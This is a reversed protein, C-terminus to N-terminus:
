PEAMKVLSVSQFLPSTSVLSVIILRVTPALELFQKFAPNDITKSNIEQRDFYALVCLGGYTGVDPPSIVDNFSVEIEFPVGIFMRAAQKHPWEELIRKKPFFLFFLLFFFVHRPSNEGSPSNALSLCHIPSADYVV